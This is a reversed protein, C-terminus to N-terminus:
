LFFNDTGNERWTHTSVESNLCSWILMCETVVNGTEL